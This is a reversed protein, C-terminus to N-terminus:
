QTEVKMTYKTVFKTEESLAEKITLTTGKLEEKKVQLESLISRIKTSQYETEPVTAVPREIPRVM